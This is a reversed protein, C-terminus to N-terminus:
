RKALRRANGTARRHVPKLGQGVIHGDTNAADAGAAAGASIMRQALQMQRNAAQLPTASSAISMLSASNKLMQSLAAGAMRANFDGIRLAMARSSEEIAALKESGMLAFEKRDRASPRVGAAAMRSTRHGIVQASALMMEGTKAAVEAWIVFPNTYLSLSKM